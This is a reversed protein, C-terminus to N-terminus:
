CRTNTNSTESNELRDCFNQFTTKGTVIETTMEVLPAKRNGLGGTFTNQTAKNTTTNRTLATSDSFADARYVRLALIYGNKAEGQTRFGQVALDRSSNASCGGSDLDVCYLDSLQTPAAAGNLLKKDNIETTPTPITGSSVGDIYAKAAQTALEVRRAQVRTAVSLALVPAIAVLLIAVVIIAILSEIITFGSENSQCRTLIFRSKNM